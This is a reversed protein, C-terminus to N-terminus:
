RGVVSEMGGRHDRDTSGCYGMGRGTRPGTGLPGTRDGGPM